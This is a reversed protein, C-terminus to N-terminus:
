DQVSMVHPGQLQPQDRMYSDFNVNLDTDHKQVSHKIVNMRFVLYLGVPLILCSKTLGDDGM